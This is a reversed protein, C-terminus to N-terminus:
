MGGKLVVKDNELLSELRKKILMYQEDFQYVENINENFLINFSSFKFLNQMFGCIDKNKERPLSVNARSNLIKEPFLFRRCAGSIGLGIAGGEASQVLESEKTLVPNSIESVVELIVRVRLIDAFIEEM